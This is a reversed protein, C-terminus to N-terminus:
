IEKINLNKGYNEIESTTMMSSIQSMNCVRAIKFLESYTLTKAAKLKTKFLDLRVYRDFNTYDDTDWMHFTTATRSKHNIVLVSYKATFFIEYDDVLRHEVVDCADHTSIIHRESNKTRQAM